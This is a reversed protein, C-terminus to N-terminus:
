CQLWYWMARAVIVNERNLIDKKCLFYHPLLHVRVWVWARLLLTLSKGLTPDALRVYKTMVLKKRRRTM